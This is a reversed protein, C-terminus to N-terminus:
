PCGWGPGASVGRTGHGVCLVDDGVQQTVADVDGLQDDGLLQGACCRVVGALLGVHLQSLPAGPPPPTAAGGLFLGAGALQAGRGIGGGAGAM